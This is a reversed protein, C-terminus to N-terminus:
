HHIQPTTTDHTSTSDSNKAPSKDLKDTVESQHALADQESLKINVELTEDPLVPTVLSHHDKEDSELGKTGDLM